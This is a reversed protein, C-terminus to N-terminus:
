DVVIGSLDREPKPYQMKLGELTQVIISLVAINRFWKRDSPIVFWPAHPTSCRTLADEYARQYKGWLKRDELDGANFKWNKEPQDLRERFREAQEDKSIHLFFKLITTGNAALISEFANIQEYRGSWVSPPVLKRVRAALVDEYHSRNFIGIEGRGPCAKHIRWLFDHDLEEATPLKFSTITCGQPNVGRTVHRITGDKGGADMAQLVVLLAHRDEAWLVRQLDALRKRSKKLQDRADDKSSLGATDRPDHGTLHVRCGPDVRFRKTFDMNM